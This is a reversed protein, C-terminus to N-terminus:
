SASIESFSDRARRCKTQLLKLQRSAGTPSNQLQKLDCLWQEMVCARLLAGVPVDLNNHAKRGVDLFRSGDIIGLTESQMQQSLYLFDQWRDELTAFPAHAVFAKRKRNLIPEPLVNRLARRMLSRRQGPRVMQERPIAFAFELLDRDLYPFSREFPSAFPISASSIQRRVADIVARNVQFSPLPGLIRLRSEYGHLALWHRKVFERDLWEPALKSVSRSSRRKPLFEKAMELLLQFWPKRRALAWARLSHSLRKVHLRAALDALEPIPTPVGGLVEDGGVGSLVVRNGNKQMCDLFKDVSQRSNVPPGYVAFPEDNGVFDYMRQSTVDIHCGIHGRKAEVLSFYPKENWNPETESYYSVTDLRPCSCGTDEMISDAVCVISTSDMGGSLEAIVPRDSSLRRKVSEFFVTRFHEEYEADTRYVIEKNPNFDWYQAVDVKDKRIMVYHSAPVSKISLYPTCHTAPGRTLWGAFYELDLDFSRSVMLLLPDLLTCWSINNNDVRYYLHRSGIHDKALALSRQTPNWISLAWDGILKALCNLQWKEYAAAVIKIDPIVTSPSMKLAAVMEKRNDLRGDWTIVAGSASTYPQEEWHSEPTTRFSGYLIRIGGGKYHSEGDPGHTALLPRVADITLANVPGGDFNWTGFQVAMFREKPGGGVLDLM